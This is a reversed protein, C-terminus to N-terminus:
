GSLATTRGNKWSPLASLTGDASIYYEPTYMLSVESLSRVLGWYVTDPVHAADLIRLGLYNSSESATSGPEAPLLSPDNSWILYSTEYLTGYRGLTGAAPM